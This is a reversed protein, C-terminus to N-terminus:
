LPREVVGECTEPLPQWEEPAPNNFCILQLVTKHEEAILKDMEALLAVFRPEGRLRVFSSTSFHLNQDRLGLKIAKKLSEIVREIDNDFAALMAEVLWLGTHNRGSARLAALDSRAIRAASLAGEEDGTQRRAEALWITARLGLDSAIPRGEPAKALARELLPVAEQFRGAQVLVSGAVTLADVSDPAIELRNRTERIADDWNGQEADVWHNGGPFIRRAEDYEGIWALVRSAWWHHPMQLAHSLGEALRGEYFILINAHVWNGWRSDQEFVQDALAHAEDIRGTESLWEAYNFRVVFDLPDATLMQEMFVDREEYRGLNLLAIQLWNMADGYTPNLELAKRLHEIEAVLDGELEALLARGAHVEALNPALAEARELHPVAIETIEELSLNGGLGLFATAVALQAHAPAFADDIRLTREFEDIAEQVDRQQFLARGKLYADYANISAARIVRPLEADGAAVGLHLKLSDSISAAIEDQIAFVDSLERDYIRSWMHYGNDARILQASIRIRDGSRRVSGELVHSVNLAAAIDAVNENKGKFYFSSTRAPVYVDPLQTLLNLLEESLGDSFYDQEPDGSLNVFPLVAISKEPPGAVWWKDWAFLIVAAALMAIVIFDLRRGTIRTISTGPEVDKELAIGEPTLEYFWSFVLAIPFGIALLALVTPGTWDPLKALGIVVEAVQMVLWAALVFLVAMRLVNRRKLESILGV